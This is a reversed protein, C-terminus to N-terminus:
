EEETESFITTKLEDKIDEMCLAALALHQDSEAIHVWDVHNEQNITLLVISTVNNQKAYKAMDRLFKPIGGEEAFHGKKVIGGEKFNVTIVSVKNEDDPKKSNEDDKDGSM